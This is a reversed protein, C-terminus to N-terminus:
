CINKYIKKEMLPENNRDRFQNTHDLWFALTVDLSNLFSPLGLNGLFRWTISQEVHINGTPFSRARSLLM